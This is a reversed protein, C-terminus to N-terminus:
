EHVVSQNTEDDTWRVAASVPKQKGGRRDGFSQAAGISTTGSM